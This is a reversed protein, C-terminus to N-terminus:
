HQHHHAPAAPDVTFSFTGSMVHGDEGAVRWSVKYDGASLGSVPVSMDKTAKAPLPGLNRAPATGQQLTLATLRAAGSFHLEISQPTAVKSKDAPVSSELKTHAQAAVTALLFGLAVMTRKM